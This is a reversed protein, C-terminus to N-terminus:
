APVKSGASGSKLEGGSMDSGMLEKRAAEQQRRWMGAYQGGKELLEEHRGREAIRGDDLVIIEDADIITSLRHAIVLTTHDRAVEALNDQIERETHSDLASTAEDFLLIPPDKLITRAIAVRQKEGGSLKLGREGVKTEYKDPLGMVFDHIHALEAAQQIEAPSAGPRGYAINYAVTDNFLVTDQPVIGISARLSGQTVDRIDQGDILIRGSGVDYFRFLLRSLTSKGAGSPGVIALKNGAPVTFSVGKLIPRRPDYGFEVNEFRIEGSAVALPKAGPKDAIEIDVRLLAFMSEMDILSQRIERYVFGLFNLPLYLQILYANVLVFDGVTMTGQATGRAAMGMMLVLGTAIIFAQGTNLIALSTRSKVAAKEYAQLAVDYRRAEHEENSFYKVTEYNLLSDVAKTNASQDSENMDRRFQIRWETVSLSYWIYVLITVFTVAAYTWDYLTWLIVCVMGIEILTPLVNFLIFFLLFEIGKAGREIARNLGGTQRELHFKLSLAHLHRFTSLAVARISRQAVKAFIGDRFEAFAQSIVRAVGYALLLGLSIGILSTATGAATGAPHGLADVMRKFLLPVYVNAVKAIILCLVSLVVRGRLDWQGKPWLHPLLARLAHMQTHPNTDGAPRPQAPSHPAAM